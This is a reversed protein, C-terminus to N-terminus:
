EAGDLEPLPVRGCFKEVTLAAAFLKEETDAFLAVGCPVGAKEDMGLPLNVSPLGAYNMINNMGTMLCADYQKLSELIQARVRTRDAMIQAYQEEEMSRVVSDKLCTIGYKMMREPDAEYCRIIEGLTKKGAAADKLYEELDHRFEHRFVDGQYPTAVYSEEYLEAGAARLAAYLKEFGIKEGHTVELQWSTNIALKLGKAEKAQVGPLKEDRMASYVMLADSLTRTMPGPSDFTHAIPIVGKCTLSGVAPKLGVVGNVNACAIISFSTDTGVAAACLGASMAVGSGSSSGSPTHEKNYAHIVQGGKSSFGSPMGASTFNAFETMNTKGLIVAGNKRLNQVVPADEKAVNDLLALSGATTAMGFIDINDKILIPLGFLPLSGDDGLSDLARADDMAHPNVEAVADLRGNYRNIRDMYYATLQACTIKKEFIMQRLEAATKMWLEDM